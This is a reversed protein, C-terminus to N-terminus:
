HCAHKESLENFASLLEKGDFIWFDNSHLFLTDEILDNRTYRFIQLVWRKSKEFCNHVEIVCKNLLSGCFPELFSQQRLYLSQFIAVSCDFEFINIQIFFFMTLLKCFFLFINSFIQSSKHYTRIHYKSSGHLLSEFALIGPFVDNRDSGIPEDEFVRFTKWYSVYHVLM